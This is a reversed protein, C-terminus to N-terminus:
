GMDRNYRPARDGGDQLRHPKVCEVREFCRYDLRTSGSGRRARAHPSWPVQQVLSNSFSGSDGTCVCIIQGSEDPDAARSLATKPRELASKSGQASSIGQHGDESAQFIRESPGDFGRYGQHQRHQGGARARTLTGPSRSCWLTQSLAPIGPGSASLRVAKKLTQPEPCHPRRGNWLPSAAKLPVSGRTGTRARRSSGKRPAMLDETARINGTGGGARARVHSNWCVHFRVTKSRSVL